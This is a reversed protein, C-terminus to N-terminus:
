GASHTEYSEDGRRPRIGFLAEIVFRVAGYSLVFEVALLWAVM